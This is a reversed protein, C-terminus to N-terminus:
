SLADVYDRFLLAELDKDGFSKEIQGQEIGVKAVAKLGADNFDIYFDDLNGTWTLAGKAVEPTLKAEKAYIEVASDTESKLFKISDATATVFRRVADPNEKIFDDTTAIGVDSYQPLYDRLSQLIRAEGGQIFKTAFPIASHTCDVVGQKAATWAGAFDAISVLEVDKGPELSAARLMRLALLESAGGPGTIAVKKGRLDEVSEIKSNKPVIQIATTTNYVNGVLRIKKQGKSYVSMCSLASPAGVDTSQLVARVVDSGGLNLPQLDLGHDTYIGKAIGIIMPANNVISTWGSSPLGGSYPGSGGSKGGAAPSSGNSCGSAGLVVMGGAFVGATHIFDRRTWISMHQAM